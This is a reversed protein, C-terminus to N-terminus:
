IWVLQKESFFGDALHSLPDAELDALFKDDDEEVESGEADDDQGQVSAVKKDEYAAEQEIMVRSIRRGEERDEDKYISLEYAMLFKFQGGFARKLWAKEASTYPEGDAATPNPARDLSTDSLSIYATKKQLEWRAREADPWRVKIHYLQLLDLITKSKSQGTLWLKM